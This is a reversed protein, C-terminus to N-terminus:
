SHRAALIAGLGLITTGGALLKAVMAAKLGMAAVGRAAASIRRLSNEFRRFPCAATWVEVSRPRVRARQVLRASHCHSFPSPAGEGFRGSATWCAGGGM